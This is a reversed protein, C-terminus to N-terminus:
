ITVRYRVYVISKQLLSYSINRKRFSTIMYIYTREYMHVYTHIYTHIYIYLRIYLHIIVHIEHVPAIWIQICTHCCHHILKHVTMSHYVASHASTIILQKDTFKMSNLSLCNLMINRWSFSNVWLHPMVTLKSDSNYYHYFPLGVNALSHLQHSTNSLTQAIYM